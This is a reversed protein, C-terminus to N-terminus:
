RQFRFAAMEGAQQADSLITAKLGTRPGLGM